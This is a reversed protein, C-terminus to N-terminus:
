DCHGQQEGLENLTLDTGNLMLSLANLLYTQKTQKQISLSFHKQHTLRSSKIDSLKGTGITAGEYTQHVSFYHEMRAALDLLALKAESCHKKKLYQSYFSFSLTTLISIIGLTIIFEILSFGNHNKFQYTM